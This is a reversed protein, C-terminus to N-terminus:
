CRPRREVDVAPKGQALAIVSGLSLYLLSTLLPFLLIKFVVNAVPRRNKNAGTFSLRMGREAGCWGSQVAQNVTNCEDQNQDQVIFYRATPM